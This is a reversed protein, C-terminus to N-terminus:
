LLGPAALYGPVGRKCGDGVGGAAPFCLASFIGACFVDGSDTQFYKFYGSIDPLTWFLSGRAYSFAHTRGRISVHGSMLQYRKM